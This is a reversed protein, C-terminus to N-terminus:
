NERWEKADLDVVGDIRREGVPGNPGMAVGMRAATWRYISARVAPILLVLGILDSVFGPLLLLLGALGILMADALTRGPLRGGDLATRMKGLVAFGQWRIVAAGILAMVIVGLLTPWLGIAQGVLVFGAIEALPVLTFVIFLIRGAM